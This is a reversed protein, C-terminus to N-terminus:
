RVWNEADLGFGSPNLFGTGNNGDVFIYVSQEPYTTAYAEAQKIAAKENKTEFQEVEAFIPNGKYGEDTVYAKFNM